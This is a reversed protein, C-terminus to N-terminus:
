TRFLQLVSASLMNSHALMAMASRTRISNVVFDVFSSAFDTDRIGSEAATLNESTVRLSALNSELDNRVTAGLKVQVADMAQSAADITEISKAAAQPTSLDINELKAINALAGKSGDLMRAGNYEADAVASNFSDVISNAAVAFAAQMAPSNEAENSAGVAMERIQTLQSRLESVNSSVTNYKDINSAVNEIEQNLSAIRSRLQESIVLGAPDDAASNITQGSSLKQMVRLVMDYGSNISAVNWRANMNTNLTIGM